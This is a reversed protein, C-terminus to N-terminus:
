IFSNCFDKKGTFYIDILLIYLFYLPHITGKVLLKQSKNFVEVEM